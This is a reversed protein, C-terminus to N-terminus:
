WLADWRKPDIVGQWYTHRGLSRAWETKGIRSGGYMVLSKCGFRGAGANFSTALWEQLEQPLIWNRREFGPVYKQFYYQPLTWHIYNRYNNFNVALLGRDLNELERLAQESTRSHKVAEEIEVVEEIEDAEFGCAKRKNCGANDM